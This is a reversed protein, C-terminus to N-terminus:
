RRSKRAYTLFRHRPGTASDRWGSDKVQEWMAPDVAPAFTDGDVKLDIETVELRDVAELAAGYIRGGGIVWVEGNPTLRAATELAAALSGVVADAGPLSSASTVVVNVRGPLPRFKEPFSEWTRRGMVVAGGRTLSSFRGLDEPLHWPMDGGAGIVPRGDGDRAQAWIATIAM